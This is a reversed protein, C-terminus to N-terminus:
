NIPNTLSFVHTSSLPQAWYPYRATNTTHATRVTHIPVATPSQLAQLGNKPAPNAIHANRVPNFLNGTPVTRPACM